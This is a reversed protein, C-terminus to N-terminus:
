NSIQNPKRFVIYTSFKYVTLHKYITIYMIIRRLKIGKYM